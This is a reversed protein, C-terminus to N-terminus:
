KKRKLKLSYNEKIRDKSLKEKANDKENLKLKM